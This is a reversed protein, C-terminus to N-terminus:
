TQRERTGAAELALKHEALSTAVSRSGDIRRRPAAKAQDHLRDAWLLKQAGAVCPLDYANRPM